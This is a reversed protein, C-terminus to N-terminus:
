PAHLFRNVPPTKGNVRGAAKILTIAEDYRECDYGLADAADLLAAALYPTPRERAENLLFNEARHVAKLNTHLRAGCAWEIANVADDAGRGACEAEGGTVQAVPTGPAIPKGTCADIRARARPPRSARKWGHEDAAAIREAIAQAQAESDDSGEAVTQLPPLPKAPASGGQTLALGVVLAIPAITGLIVLLARRRQDM